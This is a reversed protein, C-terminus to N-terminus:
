IARVADESQKNLDSQFVFHPINPLFSTSAALIGAYADIQRDRCNGTDILIGTINSGAASFDRIAKRVSMPGAYDRDNSWMGTNRLYIHKFHKALHPQSPVYDLRKIIRSAPGTYEDRVCHVGTHFDFDHYLHEVGIDGSRKCVLRYSTLDQNSLYSAIMHHIENPLENM